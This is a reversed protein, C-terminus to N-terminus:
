LEVEVIKKRFSFGSIIRVSSKSIDFHKALAAIVGENARGERSPNKTSIVFDCESIKEVSNIKANPKVKVFIKMVTGFTYRDLM